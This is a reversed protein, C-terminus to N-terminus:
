RRFIYNILLAETFAHLDTLYQRKKRITEESFESSFESPLKFPIKSNNIERAGSRLTRIYDDSLEDLFDEAIKLIHEVEKETEHVTFKRGQFELEEWGTGDELSKRTM